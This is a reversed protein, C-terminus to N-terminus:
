IDDGYGRYSPFNVGLMLIEEVKVGEPNHTVDNFRLQYFLKRYQANRAFLVYMNLKAFLLLPGRARVPSTAIVRVVPGEVYKYRGDYLVSLRNVM